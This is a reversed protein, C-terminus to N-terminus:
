GFFKDRTIEYTIADYFEGRVKRVGMRRHIEQFGLKEALGIMRENGSWTQTYLREIEPYKAFLYTIWQKLARSGIGRGRFKEEPIDIGVATKASNNDVYYSGVWGIHEGTELCIELVSPNQHDIRKRLRATIEDISSPDEWPADWNMWETETTYWRIYDEIDETQVTRLYVPNGDM